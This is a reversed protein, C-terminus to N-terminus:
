GPSQDTRQAATWLADDGLANRQARGDHVLELLAHEADARDPQDNGHTLLAAV